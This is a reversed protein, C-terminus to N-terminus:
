REKVTFLSAIIDLLLSKKRGFTDVSIWLGLTRIKLSKLLGVISQLSDIGDTWDIHGGGGYM